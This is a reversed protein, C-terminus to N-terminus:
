GVIGRPRLISPAGDDSSGAGGSAVGMEVALKYLEAIRNETSPHTRFLNDMGGGTLPNVIFLHAMAPVREALPNPVRRVIEQIRGLASALWLPNGCIIAGLRDAQYERQRSIAMQILMAALPAVLMAAFTALRGHRNGSNRSGFIASVQLWQTIMSIAGAFTAAITMTLTDRSKIHALEHAMVGAVEQPTLAELLGSSACVAANEPNRGTAFANPQPSQMMYVRPMPLEARRALEAVIEHLQGGSAADVERANQMRLVIKDSNWYALGNMVLAVALAVLLGTQGGVFGGMAAFLGALVALLLASRAFNM